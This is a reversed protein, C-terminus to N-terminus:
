VVVMWENMPAQTPFSTPSLVFDKSSILNGSPKDKKFDIVIEVESM